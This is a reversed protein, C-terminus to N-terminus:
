TKTQHLVATISLAVTSIQGERRRLIKLCTFTGCALLIIWSVNKPIHRKMQKSSNDTRCRCASYTRLTHNVTKASDQKIEQTSLVNWWTM